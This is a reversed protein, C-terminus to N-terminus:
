WSIEKGERLFVGTKCPVGASLVSSFRRVAEEPSIVIADWDAMDTDVDGPCVSLFSIDGEQSTRNRRAAFRTYANLAAKSLKYAPQGNFILDRIPLTFAGNIIDKVVIDVNNTLHSASVSTHLSELRRKLPDSFLLLEGDGSSVNIVRPYRPSRQLLPLLRETLYVQAFFNVEMVSRWYSSANAVDLPDDPCIAANNVLVDIYPLNDLLHEAFKQVSTRDALDLKLDRVNSVSQNCVTDPPFSRQGRVVVFGQALLESGLAKGLGRLGGTVVAILHSVEKSKPTRLNAKNRKSPYMCSHTPFCGSIDESRSILLLRLYTARM